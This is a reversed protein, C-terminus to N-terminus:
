HLDFRRWRNEHCGIQMRQKGIPQNSAQYAYKDFHAMSTRSPLDSRLKWWKNPFGDVRYPPVISRRLERGARTGKRVTQGARRRAKLQEEFLM